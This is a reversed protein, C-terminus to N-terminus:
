ADQLGGVAMLLRLAADRDLRRGDFKGSGKLAEIIADDTPSLTSACMSWRGFRRENIPGASIRRIDEHSPDGAIRQFITGVDIRRGELVQVFWDGCALLAGTVGLRRNRPVAVRLIEYVCEAPDDFVAHTARSVYVIQHLDHIGSVRIAM